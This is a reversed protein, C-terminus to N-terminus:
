ASRCGPSRSARVWSGRRGGHDAGPPSGSRAVLRIQLWTQGAAFYSMSKRRALSSESVSGENCPCFCPRPHLCPRLCPRPCPSAIPLPIRSRIIMRTVSSSALEPLSDHRVSLLLALLHRSLHELDLCDEREFPNAGHNQEGASGGGAASPGCSSGCAQDRRRSYM